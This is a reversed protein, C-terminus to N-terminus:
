PNEVPNLSQQVRRLLDKLEYPKQLFDDIGTQEVREKQDHDLFGSALIVKAESDLKKIEELVSLGDIKPLGLDLLVLGIEARKQKYITLAQSGDPATLVRYGKRRLTIATMKRINPEDEVLLITEVGGEPEGGKKDPRDAVRQGESAAPFYLDFRSGRAPQSHVEIHGHHSKVIGHVVALGLGSGRQGHKTTFFPEFIAQAVEETMGAGTDSVSVRVYTQESPALFTSPLDEAVLTDTELTLVGESNMADRANLCLNMLVQNIQSPDAAVLPLNDAPRHKIEITKPLTERLITKIENIADNLQLPELSVQTKRAFTLIRQVLGAARQGATDIQDLYGRAPHEEELSDLALECYGTIIGLLNNFDHAIGGALAGLSEMKQSQRVQAELRKRETIDRGIGLVSLADNQERHQSIIFEGTSWGGDKRSIRLEFREVYEGRLAAQFNDVAFARDDEHIIPAFYSGIWNERARGTLDEFVRNLLTIRGSADLHFVVDRASEVLLRYRYESEQFAMLASHTEGRLREQEIAQRIAPGLRKLRDKFVYNAAGEDLIRTAEEDGLVGSVVIVPVDLGRERVHHLAQVCDYAPLNYDALIVDLDPALARKFDAETEVREGSALFGARNLETEILTADAESDELMLFRLPTPSSQLTMIIAIFSPVGALAVPIM